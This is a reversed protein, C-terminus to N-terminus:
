QALHLKSNPKPIFAKNIVVVPIECHADKYPGSGREWGNGPSTQACYRGDNSKSNWQYWLAPAAFAPVCIFSCIVLAAFRSKM